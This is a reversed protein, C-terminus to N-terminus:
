EDEQEELADELVEELCGGGNHFSVAFSITGDDNKTITDSMENLETHDFLKYVNDGIVLFDGSNELLTDRWDESWGEHVEAFWKNEVCIHKLQNDLTQGEPRPILKVKGVHYEMNSM